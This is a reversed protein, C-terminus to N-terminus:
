SKIGYSSFLRPLYHSRSSTPWTTRHTSTSSASHTNNSSNECSFIVDTSTNPKLTFNQITLMDGATVNGDKNWMLFQVDQNIAETIHESIYMAQTYFRFRSYVLTGAVQARGFGTLARTISLGWRALLQKCKLYKEMIFDTADVREQGSAPPQFQDVSLRIGGGSETSAPWAVACATAAAGFTGSDLLGAWDGVRNAGDGGTAVGRGRWDPREPCEFGSPEARNGYFGGNDAGGLKGAGRGISGCREPPEVNAEVLATDIRRIRPPAPAPTLIFM